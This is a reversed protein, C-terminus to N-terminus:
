RIYVPNEKDREWNLPNNQIYERIKSLESESRIIHDYFRPQWINSKDNTMHRIERTVRSKFGGIIASLSGSIPSSFTRTPVRGATDTTGDHYDLILIGHLHNPMIIFDDFVLFLHHNPLDLWATKVINGWDNLRMQDNIISGFIFRKAHTCITVFYIGPRCYDYQSLRAIKRQPTEGSM